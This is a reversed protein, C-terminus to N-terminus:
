TIEMTMGPALYRCSYAHYVTGTARVRAQKLLDTPIHAVNPLMVVPAPVMSAALAVLQKLADATSVEIYHLSARAAPGTRDLMETRGIVASGGEVIALWRGWPDALQHDIWEADMIPSVLASQTRSSIWEAADNTTRASGIGEDPYAAHIIYQGAGHREIGVSDVCALMKEGISGKQAYVATLQNRLARAQTRVVGVPASGANERAAFFSSLYLDGFNTKHGVVGVFVTPTDGVTATWGVPPLSSPTQFRWRLHEPSYLLCPPQWAASLIESATDVLQLSDVQAIRTAPTAISAM